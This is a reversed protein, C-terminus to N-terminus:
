DYFQTRKNQEKIHYSVKAFTTAKDDDDDDNDDDDDDDDYNDDYLTNARRSLINAPKKITIKTSIDWRGLAANKLFMEISPIRSDTQIFYYLM